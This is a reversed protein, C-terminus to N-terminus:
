GRYEATTNLNIQKDCVMGLYKFSDTFPLLVGDFYLPPLNKQTLNFCKVETHQCSSVEMPKFWTVITKSVRIKMTSIICMPFTSTLLLSILLPSGRLSSLSSGTPPSRLAPLVIIVAHPLFSSQFAFGTVLQQM